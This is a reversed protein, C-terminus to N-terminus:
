RTAAVAAGSEHFESLDFDLKEAVRRGYHTGFLPLGYEATSKHVLAVLDPPDAELAAVIADEGYMLLEPPMFNVYPTPSRRRALYNVTVGEPLVLLTGDAPLERAVRDLLRNM